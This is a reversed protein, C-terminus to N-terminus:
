AFGGLRAQEEWLRTESLEMCKLLLSRKEAAVILGSNTDDDVLFESYCLGLILRSKNSLRKQAVFYGHADFVENYKRLEDRAALVLATEGGLDRLVKVTRLMALLDM